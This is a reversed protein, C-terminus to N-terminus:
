GRWDEGWLREVVPMGVGVMVWLFVGGYLWAGVVDAPWHAGVHVRSYGVVAIMLILLAQLGVRVKGPRVWVQCLYAMFGFLLMAHLATGSPFGPSPPANTWEGYVLPRPRDIVERVGLTMLELPIILLCAVAESRRGRVWLVGSLALVSAVIVWRNGLWDLSESIRGLLPIETDRVADLIAREGTLESSAAALISLGVAAAILGGPILAKVVTGAKLAEGSM